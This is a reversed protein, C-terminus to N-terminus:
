CMYLIYNIHVYVSCVATLLLSLFDLTHVHMKFNQLAADRSQSGYRIFDLDPLLLLKLSM